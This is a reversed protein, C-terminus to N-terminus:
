DPRSCGGPSGPHSGHTRPPPGPQTPQRPSADCQFGAKTAVALEEALARASVEGGWRVPGPPLDPQRPPDGGVERLSTGEWVAVMLQRVLPRCAAPLM